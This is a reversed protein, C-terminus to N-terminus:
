SFQISIVGVISEYLSTLSNIPSFNRLSMSGSLNPVLVVLSYFAMDEDINLQRQRSVFVILISRLCAIYVNSYPKVKIISFSLLQTYLFIFYKTRAIDMDTNLTWQWPSSDSDVCYLRPGVLGDLSLNNGGGVWSNNDFIHFNIAVECEKSPILDKCTNKSNLCGHVIFSDMTNKCLM